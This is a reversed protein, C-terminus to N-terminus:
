EQESIGKTSAQKFLVLTGIGALIFTAGVALICRYPIYINADYNLVISLENWKSEPSCLLYGVLSIWIGFLILAIAVTRTKTM